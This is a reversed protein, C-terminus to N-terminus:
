QRQRQKSKRLETGWRIVNRQGAVQEPAPVSERIGISYFVGRVQAPAPTELKVNHPILVPPITLGAFVAANTATVAVTVSGAFPSAVSAIV